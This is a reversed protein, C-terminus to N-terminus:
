EGRFSQDARLLQTPHFTHAHQGPEREGVLFLSARSQIGPSSTVWIPLRGNVSRGAQRGTKPAVVTWVLSVVGKEEPCCVVSVRDSM